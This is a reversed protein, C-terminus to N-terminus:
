LSEGKTSLQTLLATIHRFAHSEDSHNDDHDSLLLECRRLTTVIHHMLDSPYLTAQHQWVRIVSKDLIRDFEEHLQHLRDGLCDCHKATWWDDSDEELESMLDGFEQFLRDSLHSAIDSPAQIGYRAFHAQLNEHIEYFRQELLLTHRLCWSLKTDQELELLLQVMLQRLSNFIPTSM